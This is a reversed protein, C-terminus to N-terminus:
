NVPKCMVARFSRSYTGCFMATDRSIQEGMWRQGGGDKFKELDKNEPDIKLAAKVEKGAGDIDGLKEMATAKRFKAKVNDADVKLAEECANKAKQYVAEAKEKGADKETQAALKLFVQAHNLQVSLLVANAEDKEEPSCDLM